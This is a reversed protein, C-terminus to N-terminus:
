LAKRIDSHSTEPADNLTYNLPLHLYCLGLIVECWEWPDVQSAKSMVLRVENVIESQAHIGPFCILIPHSVSSLLRQLLLNIPKIFSEYTLFICHEWSYTHM